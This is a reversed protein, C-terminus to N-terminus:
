DLARHVCIIKRSVLTTQGAPNVDSGDDCILVEFQNQRLTQRSLALFLAQLQESRNKIPVVVSLLLSCGAVTSTHERSPSPPVLSDASVDVNHLLEAEAHQMTVIAM